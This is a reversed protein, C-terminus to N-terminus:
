FMKICRTLSCLNSEVILACMKNLGKQDANKRKIFHFKEIVHRPVALSSPFYLFFEWQLKQCHSSPKKKM